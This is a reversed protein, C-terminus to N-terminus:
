VALCLAVTVNGCVTKPVILRTRPSMKMAAQVSAAECVSGVGIKERVRESPNPVQTEDLVSGAFFELPLGLERGAELLGEEDAKMDVSALMALSAPALEHRAMVSALAQLIEKVPTGRRCGIGVCLRRPHLLLGPAEEAKWSVMVQAQPDDVVDFSDEMGEDGRLGLLNDPDHVTVRGGEALITNVDVIRSPDAIACNRSQALTDIAPKGATDTATTIVPRGGL